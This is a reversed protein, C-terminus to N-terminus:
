SEMARKLTCVVINRSVQFIDAVRQKAYKQLIQKKNAHTLLAQLIANREQNTLSHKKTRPHVTNHDDPSTPIDPPLPTDYNAMFIHHFNAIIYREAYQYLKMSIFTKPLNQHM